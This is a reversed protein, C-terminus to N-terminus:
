PQLEFVTGCTECDGGYLNVGYLNDWKGWILGGAPEDGDKKNAPFSHLVTETWAGGGTPPSLRFATGGLPTGGILTTSYLDGESDFVIYGEPNIGDSGGEFAHLTTYTWTGGQGTPPALEFVVGCGNGGQCNLDGGIPTTGYVNGSTDLAVPGEPSIIGDNSRDFSYIVTESWVQGKKEPPSVRYVAGWGYSGGRWTSGYLNGSGDFTVGAFPEAGDPQGTFTYLVSFKWKGGKKAPRKLEFVTGCGYGNGCTDNGGLETAGYLNGEVDLVLNGQPDHGDTSDNFTYLVAFTWAGGRSPPALQWLFGTTDSGAGSGYLTGDKGMVVSTPFGPSQSTFDYLTSKTWKGGRTKPAILEYITGLNQTGGEITVGYLNGDKDVAPLGIPEFGDKGGQFRYITRYRQGHASAASGLTVIALLTLALLLKRPSRRLNM